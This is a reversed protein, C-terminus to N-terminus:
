SDSQDDGGLDRIIQEFVAQRMESSLADRQSLKDNGEMEQNEDTMETEKVAAKEAEQVEEAAASKQVAEALEPRKQEEKDACIETYGSIDSAKDASGGADPIETIDGPYEVSQQADSVHDMAIAARAREAGSVPPLEQDQLTFSGSDPEAKVIEDSRRLRREAALRRIFYILILILLILLSVLSIVAGTGLGSPMYEMTITHTGKSLNISLFADAFDTTQVQRGDVYVTWGDEYPISTFLLGDEEATIHAEIRTDTWSDIVMPVENLQDVAQIFEDELLMYINLSIQKGDNGTLLVADGAHLYGLDLIYDRDVNSFTTSGDPFQATISSVSFSTLVGYYFGDVPATFTYSVAQCMDTLTYISNIDTTLSIFSNQVTIPNSDTHNWESAESPIWFGLPLTYNNEYLSVSGSTAVLTNLPTQGTDSGSMTYKVSLLASTFPTAGNFSYSNTSGEMGLQEYISTISANASSSFLSASRYGAWAGDNKTKRVDKEMRFFDGGEREEAIDSLTQYSTTNRLYASRSTTTISTIGTNISMEAFVLVFTLSALVVTKGKHRKYLYIFLGYLGILAINIYYVYFPIEESDVVKECLLIFAFAGWISGTIQSVSATRLNRLAEYCMSLLIIIYLFSQRCPLSNPYHFGHWIFNPINWSFSILMLFLLACKVIKEKFPINKNMVYLPMLVFVAACCYINPWHELGVETEVGAMQRAIVDIMPFYSTLSSPFNINASATTGLALMVPVLIIAALGGALLSCGAFQLCKRLYTWVTNRRSGILKDDSESHSPYMILLCVFYIVLFLCLMISIYYNTLISLALTICYLLCKNEEVLRELGLIVLPALWIVDLWMINWSYAAMYGSLAYGMAFLAICVDSSRFKRSLYVSMTLGCLGTKLVILYTMFDIIAPGSILCLLLNFPSCLYYAILTVYNSGIGIDWSYLLSQWGDWNQLKDAFEAFFPAYQHYLDTRLFSNDGFPYIEKVIFILILALVPLLFSIICVLYGRGKKENTVTKM